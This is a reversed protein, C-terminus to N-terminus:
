VFRFWYSWIYSLVQDSSVPSSSGGAEIIDVADADRESRSSDSATTLGERSTQGLTASTQNYRRQQRSCSMQFRDFKHAVYGRYAKIGEYLIALAVCALMSAVLGGYTNIRWWDFLIVEDCGGHFFMQMLTHSDGASEALHHHISDSMHEMEDQNFM